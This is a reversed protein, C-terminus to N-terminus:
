QGDREAEFEISQIRPDNFPIPEDQSGDRSNFRVKLAGKIKLHDLQCM